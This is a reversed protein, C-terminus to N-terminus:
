QCRESEVLFYRTGNVLTRDGDKSLNLTSVQGDTWHITVANGAISWTGSGGGNVVGSFSSGGGMSFGTTEDIHILQGNSCLNYERRDTFGTDSKMYTLSMGPLRNAWPGSRSGPKPIERKAIATAQRLTALLPKLETADSEPLLVVFGVATQHMVVSTVGGVWQTQDPLQVRYLGEVMTETRTLPETPMMVTMADLPVPGNIEQAVEDLSRGGEVTAAVVGPLPARSLQMVEGGPDTMATWGQPVTFTLGLSSVSTVTGSTYTQGAALEVPEAAVALSVAWGLGLGAGWM